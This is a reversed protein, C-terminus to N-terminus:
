TRLLDHWNQDVQLSEFKKDNLFEIYAEAVANVRTAATQPNPHYILIDVLQSAELPRM